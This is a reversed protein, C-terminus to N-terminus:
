KLFDFDFAQFDVKSPEILFTKFMKELCPECIEWTYTVTDELATSHYEGQAIFSHIPEYDDSEDEGEFPIPVSKGCANCQLVSTIEIKIEKEEKKSVM